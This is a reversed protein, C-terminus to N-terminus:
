VAKRSEAWVKTKSAGVFKELPLFLAIDWEVSDIMLFQSRVHKSLYKHVTPKFWKFQSASKLVDYSLRLKTKEDYRKDTTLDYLADMLKARLPLSLYHMNIGMFGTKDSSFPFILPFQDYYPLTKKHKPDYSFLFMSGMMLQGTLKSPNQKLLTHSKLGSFQKGANRYWTRSKQTRAPIQGSRIGKTLMDDFIYAAM